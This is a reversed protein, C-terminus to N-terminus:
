AGPLLDFEVRTSATLRSEEARRAALGERCRDLIGGIKSRQELPPRIKDMADLAAAVLARRPDDGLTSGWGEVGRLRVRCNSALVEGLHFREGLGERRTMLVIGERPAGVIELDDPLWELVRALTEGDAEALIESTHIERM